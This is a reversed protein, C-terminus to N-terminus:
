KIMEKYKLFGQVNDWVPNKSITGNIEHIQKELKLSGGGTFIIPMDTINWNYKKCEALLIDMQQNLINDIVPKTKPNAKLYDIEYDQYNALFKTNLARKIKANIIQGGENVTFVTNKIPNLREYVAANINLGGIDIVGIITNIYQSANEILVGISEPLVTVTNITFDVPHNNIKMRVNGKLFATHASRKEKNVFQSIPCGTILDIEKAHTLSAIAYYTAIKHCLHTKSVDFNETQANDGVVYKKGEFEVQDGSLILGHEDIKTRMCFAQREANMAKTSHKGADVAIIM